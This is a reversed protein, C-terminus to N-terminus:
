PTYNYSGREDRLAVIYRHRVQVLACNYSGREDRLAVIGFYPSFLHFLTTAEERM